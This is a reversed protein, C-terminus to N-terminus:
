RNTKWASLAAPTLYGEYIAKGVIAGNLGAQALADLDALDRVGGSAVLLIGPNQLILDRYLELAPGALMGDRGIDTCVVYKFGEALYDQVFEALSLKSTEQWGGSALYGDRADAGLILREAGFEALWELAKERHKVAVSGLTVQAAGANFAAELHEREQIGGGFDIKLSTQRAIRELTQLNVIKREKAGDLDVVHLHRMGADEFDLAVSVPDEFYVTRKGYDGQTLRVCKGDSIDIAPLIRM